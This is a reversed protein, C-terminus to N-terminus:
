PSHFSHKYYFDSYIQWKQTAHKESIVWAIKMRNDHFKAIM